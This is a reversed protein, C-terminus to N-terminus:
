VNELAKILEKEEEENIRSIYSTVMDSVDNNDDLIERFDTNGCKDCRFRAVVSYSPYTHPAITAVINGDCRELDMKDLCKWGHSLDSAVDSRSYRQVIVRVGNRTEWKVLCGCKM